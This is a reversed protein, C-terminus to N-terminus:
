PVFESRDPEDGQAYVEVASRVSDIRLDAEREIVALVAAVREHLEAYTAALLDFRLKIAREHPSVVLAPGLAIEAAHREVAELVADSSADLADESIPGAVHLDLVVNAERRRGDSGSNTV